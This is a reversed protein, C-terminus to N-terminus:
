RSEAPCVHPAYYSVLSGCKQCLTFVIREMGDDSTLTYTM